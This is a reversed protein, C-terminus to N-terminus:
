YCVTDIRGSFIYIVDTLLILIFIFIWGKNVLQLCRQQIDPTFFFRKRELWNFFGLTTYSNLGLLVQAAEDNLPRLSIILAVVGDNDVVRSSLVLSHQKNLNHALLQVNCM